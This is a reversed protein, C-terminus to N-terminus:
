TRPRAQYPRNKPAREATRQHRPSSRSRSVFRRTDPGSVALIAGAEKKRRRKERERGREEREEREIVDLFMFVFFLTFSDHALTKCAATSFLQHVPKEYFHSRSPGKCPNKGWLYGHPVMRAISGTLAKARTKVGFSKWVAGNTLYSM